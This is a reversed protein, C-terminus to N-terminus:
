PPREVGIEVPDRQNRAHLCKGPILLSATVGNQNVSAKRGVQRDELVKALFILGRVGQLQMHHAVAPHLPVKQHLHAKSHKSHNRGSSHGLRHRHSTSAIEQHRRRRTGKPSMLIHQSIDRHHSMEQEALRGQLFDLIRQPNPDRCEPLLIQILMDINRMDIGDQHKRAQKLCEM